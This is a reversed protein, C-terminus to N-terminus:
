PKRIFYSRVAARRGEPVPPPATSNGREASAPATHAYGIKADTRETRRRAGNMINEGRDDVSAEITEHRLAAGLNRLTGAGGSPQGDGGGLGIGSEKANSAADTTMMVIGASGASADKVSQVAGDQKDGGNASQSADGKQADSSAMADHADKQAANQPQAADSLKESMEDLAERVEPQVSKMRADRKARDALAKLMADMSLSSRGARAAAQRSADAKPPPQQALRQDLRDLLGRVDSESVAARGSEIAALLDELDKRLQPPLIEITRNAPPRMALSASGPHEAAEMAARGPAVVAIALAAITLLGTALKARPARAVPYLAPWDVRGIHDAAHALHFEVWPDPDSRHAFWHASRLEGKLGAHADIALAAADSTERTRRAAGAIALLSAAAAAMAAFPVIPPWRGWRAALAVGLCVAAAVPALRWLRGGADRMRRLRDAQAVRARVTSRADSIGDSM